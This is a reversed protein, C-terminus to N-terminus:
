VVVPPPPAPRLDAPQLEREALTVGSASLKAKAVSGKTAADIIEGGSITLEVSAVEIEVELDLTLLTASPAGAPAGSPTVEVTPSQKSKISHEALTVVRREWPNAKTVEIAKQIERHKAWGRIALNGIPMKLLRHMASAVEVLPMALPGVLLGHLPLRTDGIAVTIQQIRSEDDSTPFLLDSVSTM